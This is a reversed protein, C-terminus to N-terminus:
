ETTEEPVPVEVINKHGNGDLWVYEEMEVQDAGSWPFFRRPRPHESCREVYTMEIWVNDRREQAWEKPFEEYHCVCGCM